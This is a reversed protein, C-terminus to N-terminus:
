AEKLEDFVDSIIDDIEMQEDDEPEKSIVCNDALREYLTESHEELFDDSDDSDEVGIDALVVTAAEEVQALWQRYKAEVYNEGTVAPYSHLENTNM